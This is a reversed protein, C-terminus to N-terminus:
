TFLVKGETCDSYESVFPVCYETELGNGVSVDCLIIDRHVNLYFLLWILVLPNIVSVM